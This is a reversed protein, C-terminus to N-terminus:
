CTPLTQQNINPGLDEEQDFDQLIESLFADHELPSETVKVFKRRRQYRKSCVTRKNRSRQLKRAPPDSREGQNIGKISQEMSLMSSSMDTLVKSLNKKSITPCRTAIKNSVEDEGLLDQEEAETTMIDEIEQNNRATNYFYLRDSMFSRLVVCAVSCEIQTRM